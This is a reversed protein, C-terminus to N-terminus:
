AVGQTDELLTRITQIMPSDAQPSRQARPQAFPDLSTTFLMRLHPDVAKAREILEIADFTGSARVDALLLDVQKRARLLTYAEDTTSATMLQFGAARLQAQISERTEQRTVVVLITKGAAM